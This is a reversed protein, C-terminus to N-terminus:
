LRRIAWLPPTRIDCMLADILRSAIQDSHNLFTFLLVSLTTSKQLTQEGKLVVHYDSAHCFSVGLKLVEEGGWVPIRLWM